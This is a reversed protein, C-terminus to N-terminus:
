YYVHGKQPTVSWLWLECGNGEERIGVAWPQLRPYQLEEREQFTFMSVLLNHLIPQNNIIFDFCFLFSTTLEPKEIGWKLTTNTM